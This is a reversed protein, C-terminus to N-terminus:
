LNEIKEPIWFDWKNIGGNNWHNQVLEKWEHHAEELVNIAIDADLFEGKFAFKNEPKGDVTKYYQFWNKISALVSPNVDKLDRYQHAWKDAIAILKWDVEGEDILALCGLIKVPRVEGQVLMKPADDISIECVDIPDKDGFFGAYEPDTLFASTKEPNEWTQPIFGYNFPIGYRSYTLERLKGKKIDQKLPNMYSKTDCEIKRSTGNPIENVFNYLIDKNISNHVDSTAAPSGSAVIPQFTYPIQHWPSILEHKDENTYGIKFERTGIVGHPVFKIHSLQKAINALSRSVM